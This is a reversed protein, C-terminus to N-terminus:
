MQTESKAVLSRPSDRETNWHNPITSITLPIASTALYDQSAPAVAGPGSPFPPSAGSDEQGRLAGGPPSTRPRHHGNAVAAQPRPSRRRVLDEM